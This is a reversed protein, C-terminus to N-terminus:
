RFMNVQPRSRAKPSDSFREQDDPPLPADMGFDEDGQAEPQPAVNTGGLQLAEPPVAVDMGFDEMGRSLLGDMGPQECEQPLPDDFGFDEGGLPPVTIKTDSIDRSIDLADFGFDEFGPQYARQEHGPGTKYPLSTQSSAMYCYFSIPFLHSYHKVQIVIDEFLLLRPSANEQANKNASDPRLNTTDTSQNRRIDWAKLNWVALWGEERGSGSHRGDEM